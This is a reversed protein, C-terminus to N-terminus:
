DAERVELALDFRREFTHGLDAPYQRPPRVSHAVRGFRRRCGDRPELPRKSRLARDADDIIVVTCRHTDRLLKPKRLERAAFVLARPDDHELAAAIATFVRREIRRRLLLG